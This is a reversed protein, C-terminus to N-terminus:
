SVDFEDIRNNTGQSSIYLRNGDPRIFIQDREASQFGYGTTWTTTLSLTSLDWPTSFTYKSFEVNAENAYLVTGEPNIYV